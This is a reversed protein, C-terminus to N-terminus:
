RVLSLQRSAPLPPLQGMEPCLPLQCESGRVSNGDNGKTEQSADPGFFRKPPQREMLGQVIILQQTALSSSSNPDVHVTATLTRPQLGCVCDRGIKLLLSNIPLIHIPSLSNIRLQLLLNPSLCSDLLSPPGLILNCAGTQRLAAGM